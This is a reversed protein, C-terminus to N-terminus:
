LTSNARYLLRCAISLRCFSLLYCRAIASIRKSNIRRLHTLLLSLPMFTTFLITFNSSLRGIRVRELWSNSCYLSASWLYINRSESLTRVVSAHTAWQCYFKQSTITFANYVLSRHWYLKSAATSKIHRNTCVFHPRMKSGLLNIAGVVVGFAHPAVGSYRFRETCSYVLPWLIKVLPRMAPSKETPFNLTVSSQKQPRGIPVSTSLLLIYLGSRPWWGILDSCKTSQCSM